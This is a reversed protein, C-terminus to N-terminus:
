EFDDKKKVKSISSNKILRAIAKVRLHGYFYYTMSILFLFFITCFWYTIDNILDKDILGSITLSYAGFIRGVTTSITILFGANFMGIEYDVPVVKAFLSSANSELM